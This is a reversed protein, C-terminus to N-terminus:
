GTAKRRPRPRVPPPEPAPLGRRARDAAIMNREPLGRCDITAVTTRTLVALAPAGSAVAAPPNFARRVREAIVKVPAAGRARDERVCLSRLYWNRNSNSRDGMAAYGRWIHIRRKQWDLISGWGAEAEIAEELPVVSGDELEARVSVYSQARQADPTYMRWSQQISIRKLLENLPRAHPGPILPALILAGLTIAALCRAARVWPNM